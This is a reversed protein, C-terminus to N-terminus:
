NSKKGTMQNIEVKIIVLRKIMRENFNFSHKDSYHKMLINLAERKGEIDEIFFAQGYGIVSSYKMGYDCPSDSEKLKHDIDMEFCVNNNQKLIEIKKGKKASHFYLCKDKYGFNLPMVYPFNNESLGIRCVKARKIISEIETIDTIEKDRRRMM